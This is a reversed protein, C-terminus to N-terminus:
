AGRSSHESFVQATFIFFKMGEEKWADEPLGAKLCLHRLTEDRGWGQEPAVQPLFVASRGGQSIIIGHRGPIFDESGGVERAITLVSIEISISDLEEAQVPRFRPDRLASQVSMLMITRYIPLLSGAEDPYGIRGICGRLTDGIKLTVFAGAKEKLAPTIAHRAEVDEPMDGTRLRTEITERALRLLTQQEAVTLMGEEVSPLAGEPVSFAASVYSVSNRFDSMMRGSTDYKLLRGQSGPPLMKLLIALANRGCITPQKERLCAVYQDYDGALAPKLAAMDLKEINASVDTTFPVYQYNPGYHTFDSSIVVLTQESLYPKLASAIKEADHEELQGVLVPLLHFGDPLVQQLFPLEIEIAHERVHVADDRVHLEHAALQICASEDLLVVGLPTSYADVDMISFGRFGAQHSPALVIVRNYNKGAVQRFSWAAVQGSFRYGAHPAILAFLHGDLPAEEARDLYKTILGRLEKEDDPYWSGAIASARISEPAKAPAPEEAREAAREGAQIQPEEEKSCATLGLLTVALSIIIWARM